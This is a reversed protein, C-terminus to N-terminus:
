GSLDGAQLPGAWDRNELDLIYVDALDAPSLDACHREGRLEDRVLASRDCVGEEIVVVATLAGRALPQDPPISLTVALAERAPEIDSDDHVAIDLPVRTEGAPITLVGDRGDHDAGDAEGTAPNDDTGLVYRLETAESLPREIVVGLRATGGERVSVRTRDFSVEPANDSIAVRVLARAFDYGGGSAVHTLTATEHTANDDAPATVEVSRPTDWDTQTFTVATRDLTVNGSPHVTVTVDSSPPTALAVHYRETTDEEVTISRPLEALYRPEDEGTVVDRLWEVWDADYRTGIVDTLYDRYGDYDGARFQRLFVDVEDRHREFM